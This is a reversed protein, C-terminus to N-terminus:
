HHRVSDLKKDYYHPKKDPEFRTLIQRAMLKGCELRNKAAVLRTSAQLRTVWFLIVCIGGVHSDHCKRIPQSARSASLVDALTRRGKSDVSEVAMNNLDRNRRVWERKDRMVYFSKKEWPVLARTALCITRPFLNCHKIHRLYIAQDAINTRKIGLNNLIRAEKM